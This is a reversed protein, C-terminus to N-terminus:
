SPMVVVHLQRPGHVGLTLTQEIDGTRSPGTIVVMNSGQTVVDPREAFFHSLSRYVQDTTALAIHVEPILSAMRPAERGSTVVISGSEALLGEAGTIGVDLSKYELQHRRREVPDSPVDSNVNHYGDHILRGAIGPVPLHGRAMFSHHGQMLGLVIDLAEDSTGVAHPTGAAKALEVCFLEILDGGPGDPVLAGPDDAPAEPFHGGAAKRLFEDREVTDGGGPM